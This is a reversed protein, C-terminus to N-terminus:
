TGVLDEPLDVDWSLPTSEVVRVPAGLSRAHELHRPFSSPGYSFVFDVDTPLGIVNTGERHRDPVLTIGPWDAVWALEDALPLDGHAVIVSRLAMERLQGFGDQVAGNLGRGPTWIVSAGLSEAWSSVEADDCVVYVPLPGASRVVRTAMRRALARRDAPSLAPSLRVKARRFAKVPILVATGSGGAAGDGPIAV